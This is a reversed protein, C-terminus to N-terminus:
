QAVGSFDPFFLLSILLAVIHDKMPSLVCVCLFVIKKLRRKISTVTQGQNVCYHDNVTLRNYFVVGPM